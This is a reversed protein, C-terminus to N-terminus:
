RPAPRTAVLQDAAWERVASMDYRRHRGIKMYPPGIRKYAWQDLTAKPINLEAAVDHSNGLTM